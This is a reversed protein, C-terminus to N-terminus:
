QRLHPLGYLGHSRRPLSHHCLSGSRPARCRKQSSTSRLAETDGDSNSDSSEASLQSSSSVSLALHSKKGSKRSWKKKCKASGKSCGTEVPNDSSRTEQKQYVAALKQAQYAQTELDIIRQQLAVNEANSSELQQIHWLLSQVVSDDPRTAPDSSCELM